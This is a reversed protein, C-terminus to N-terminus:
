CIHGERNLCFPTLFLKGHGLIQDAPAIEVQQKFKAAVRLLLGRRTGLM